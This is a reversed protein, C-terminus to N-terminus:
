SRLDFDIYIGLPKDGDYLELRYNMVTVVCSSLVISGMYINSRKELAAKITGMDMNIGYIQANLNKYEGGLGEVKLTVPTMASLPRPYFSFTITKGDKQVSCSDLNLDCTINSQAVKSTKAPSIFAFVLGLTVGVFSLLLIKKM